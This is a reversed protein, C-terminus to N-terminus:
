APLSTKRTKEWWEVIKPATLVTIIMFAVGGIVDIVYHYRLYVTSIILLTGFLYLIYRSKLQYQHALYLSILTMQTHGSPFADRQALAFANAAGAPISEGANLFNRIWDTIFMGPLETNLSNFDHLTFRPGVAPFMLYGLYSLFFGYLITFLVFSFQEKEKKLFVEIGVALMIFYYSTYAIQLIETTLPFAFQSLWVTPNVHFIFHDITILLSDWDGRGLLQTIEHVEKFTFFIFPVPYWNFIARLFPNKKKHAAFALLIICLSTATNVCLLFLSAQNGPAFILSLLSLLTM